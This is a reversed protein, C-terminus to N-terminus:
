SHLYDIIRQATEAATEGVAPVIMAAIAIAAMVIAATIVVFDVTVAGDESLIFSKM